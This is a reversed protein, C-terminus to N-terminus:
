PPTLSIVLGSPIYDGGKFDWPWGVGFLQIRGGIAYMPWHQQALGSKVDAVRPCMDITPSQTPGFVFKLQVHALAPTGSIYTQDWQAPFGWPTPPGVPTWRSQGTQRYGCQTDRFAM